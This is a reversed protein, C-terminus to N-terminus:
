KWGEPRWGDRLLAAAELSQHHMYALDDSPLDLDRKVSVVRCTARAALDGLPPESGWQGHRVLCWDAWAELELIAQAVPELGLGEPPPPLVKRMSSTMDGSLGMDADIELASVNMQGFRWGPDAATPATVGDLMLALADVEIGPPLRYRM